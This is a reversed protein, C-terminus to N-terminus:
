AGPFLDSCTHGDPSTCPTCYGPPDCYCYKTVDSAKRAVGRSGLTFHMGTGFSDTRAITVSSVYRDDRALRLAGSLISDTEDLLSVLQAQITNLRERSRDDMPETFAPVDSDIKNSM